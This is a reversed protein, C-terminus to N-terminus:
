DNKRQSRRHLAFAIAAVVAATMAIAAVVALATRDGTQALSEGERLGTEYVNKVYDAEAKSVPNEVMEDTIEVKDQADGSEIFDKVVEDKDPITSEIEDKDFSTDSPLSPPTSGDGDPTPASDDNPTDAPKGNSDNGDGQDPTEGDPTTGADPKATSDDPATADDPPTGGDPTTTSDDSATADDPKAGGDPIEVGDPINPSDPVYLVNIVNDDPNVGVRIEAPYTDVVYTGDIKYEYADGKVLKDFRQDTFTESGMKIFKVDDPKLADKWNDASLDANEMLYYNVTYENNWLKFYFLKIVNDDPNESLTLNQPWGDWFFYGPIDVVYDWANLTQGVHVDKLEYTGLLVRGEDDPEVDGDDYGVNEYYMITATTAEADTSADAASDVEADTAQETPSTSALDRGGEDASQSACASLSIALCGAFLCAFLALVPKRTSTAM